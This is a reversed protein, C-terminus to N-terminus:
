QDPFTKDSKNLAEWSVTGISRSQKCDDWITWVSWRYLQPSPTSLYVRGGVSKIVRREIFSRIVNSCMLAITIINPTFHSSLLLSSPHSRLRNFVRGKSRSSFQEQKWALHPPYPSVPFIVTLVSFLLYFLGLSFSTLAHLTNTFPSWLANKRSSSISVAPKGGTWVCVCVWLPQVKAAIGSERM